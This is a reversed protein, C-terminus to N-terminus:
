MEQQTKGGGGYSEISELNCNNISMTITMISLKQLFAFAPEYMFMKNVTLISICFLNKSTRKLVIVILASRNM